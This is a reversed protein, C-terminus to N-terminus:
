NQAIQPDSLMKNKPQQITQSISSSNDIRPSRYNFSMWVKWIAEFAKLINYGGLLGLIDVHFFDNM